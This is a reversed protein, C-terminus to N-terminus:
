LWDLYYKSVSDLIWEKIKGQTGWWPEILLIENDSNIDEDLPSWHTGFNYHLIKPKVWGLSTLSKVNGTDEEVPVIINRGGFIIEKLDKNVSNVNNQKVQNYPVLIYDYFIIPFKLICDFRKAEIKEVIALNKSSSDNVRKFYKKNKFLILDWWKLIRRSESDYVLFM